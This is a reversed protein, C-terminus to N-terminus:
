KLFEMKKKGNWSHVGVFRWMWSGWPDVRSFTTISENIDNLTVSLQDDYEKKCNM